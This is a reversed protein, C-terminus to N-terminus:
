GNNVKNWEIHLGYGDSDVYPDFTVFFENNYKEELLKELLKVVTKGDGYKLDDYFKFSISVDTGFQNAEIGDVVHKLIQSATKQKNNKYYIIEAM